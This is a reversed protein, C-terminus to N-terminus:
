ETSKWLTCVIRGQEDWHQERPCAQGPILPGCIRQRTRAAFKIDAPTKCIYRGAFIASAGPLFVGRSASGHDCHVSRVLDGLEERVDIQRRTYKSHLILRGEVNAFNWRHFGTYGGNIAENPYVRIFVPNGPKAVHLMQRLVAIPDHTHDLANVSMVLDFSDNALRQTLQEGLLQRVRMPPQLGHKDLLKQYADGLADTAVVELTLGPESTMRFGSAEMPGSGVDLIRFHTQNPRRAELLLAQLLPRLPTLPNMRREYDDHFRDGGRSAMWGDWYDLEAQIGTDWNENSPNRRLARARDVVPDSSNCVQYGLAYSYNKRGDRVAQASGCTGFWSGNTNCCNTDLTGAPIPGRRRPLREVGCVHCHKTTPTPAHQTCAYESQLEAAPTAIALVRAM